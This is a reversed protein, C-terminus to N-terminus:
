EVTDVRVDGRRITADDLQKVLGELRKWHHRYAQRLAPEYQRWMREQAAAASGKSVSRQRLLPAHSARLQQISASTQAVRDEEAKLIGNLVALTENRQHIIHSWALLQESARSLKLADTIGQLVKQNHVAQASVPRDDIGTLIPM